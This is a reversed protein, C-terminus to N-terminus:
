EASEKAPQKASNTKKKVAVLEGSLVRRQYYSTDLVEVPEAPSPEIYQRPDGETPVRLGPAAVVFM